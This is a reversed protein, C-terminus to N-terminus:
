MIPRNLTGKRSEGLFGVINTPAATLPKAGSSIEEIYVGPTYYEVAM